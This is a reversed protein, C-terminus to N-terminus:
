NSNIREILDSLIQANVERNPVKAVVVSLGAVPHLVEKCLSDLDTVTTSWIGLSRAIAALDLGHPTGFLREFGSVGRQSLTSFIGGGDNNIVLIRLNIEAAGILGTLDHLFSLDGLVALTSSRQSAIGLATSINGDIGALGRNAFTEIAERPTAFGELDRIPRSSSVFVTSGIPLLASIKRAINAESWEPLTDLLRSTKAGYSEWLANWDPDNEVQKIVKPLSTFLQDASRNTDVTAIRPDIVIEVKASKILSNTSRSLTTRGIVIATEPRLVRRHEKSTLFISAHAVAHSFSLPDEAIVPWGIKATFAMIEAASLGGRDHGIVVIGQAETILLEPVSSNQDPSIDSAPPPGKVLGTLWDSDDDPLLPEDFQVNLHVPGSALGRFLQHLDPLAESIDAMYTVAEGFIGSQLTTQNAGTRRLRAPRDATIALLPIQSHHAELIVPHYNAVATGSTCLLVVPRNAAKAIGLAFFGATREDIRVHLNLLGKEAASYLALSMPSNRSGPSLVVDSIGNEILQRTLSRALQTASNM